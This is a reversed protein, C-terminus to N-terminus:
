NTRETQGDTEPYFSISLKKKVGLKALFTSWYKSTFLKDCDTIFEEPIGYESILAKTVEYAC